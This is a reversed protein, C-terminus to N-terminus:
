SMEICPLLILQYFQLSLEWNTQRTDTNLLNKKLITELSLLIHTDLWYQWRLHNQVKGTAIAKSWKPALANGEASRTLYNNTTM